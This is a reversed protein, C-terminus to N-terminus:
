DGGRNCLSVDVDITEFILRRSLFKDTAVGESNDILELKGINGYETSDNFKEDLFMALYDNRNDDQIKTWFKVEMHDNHTYITIILQPTVFTGNRDRKRTNVQVTLFTITETITNPNKNYTFIHTNKLQKGDYKPSDIMNCIDPDECIANIVNEKLSSVITSNAM